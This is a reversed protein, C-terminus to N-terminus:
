QSEAEEIDSQLQPIQADNDAISQGLADGSSKCYCIFKDYLEKEKEGEAEVKKAMMQLMSVVRRIPNITSASHDEAKIAIGAKGAIEARGASVLVCSMLAFLICICAANFAM